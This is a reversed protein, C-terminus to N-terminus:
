KQTTNALNLVGNIPITLSAGTRFDAETTVASITDITDGYNTNTLQGSTDGTNAAVAVTYGTLNNTNVGFTVESGATTSSAFTGNSSTPTIDVSAVNSASTITVSSISPSYAAEASEQHNVIPFISLLTLLVFCGFAATGFIRFSKIQKIYGFRKRSGVCLTHSVM